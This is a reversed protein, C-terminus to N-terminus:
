RGILKRHWRHGNSAASLGYKGIEARSADNAVVGLVPASSARELLQVLRQASTERTHGLRAVIVIADVGGLLPIADSVELVPPADILVHDFDEAVSQMLGKMAASALLGPPNEVAAGSVLVSLSGTRSEATVVGAPALAPEAGTEPHQSQVTQIADEVALAGALVESLGAPGVVGLLRAQVPRRFDAEIVATREGADRQVLALNAVLTSKGDGADASLFLITRPSSAEDQALMDGLKLMTQFRWLPDRLPRAPRSLGDRHIIPRKVTPLVALIQTQFVAEIDALSRLRREFGSVAYAALAALAVGIVFGFIANKKPGTSALVAKASGIQQVSTVSLDSELQEIRTNLSVIQLSGTSSAGLSKSHKGKSSSAPALAALEIRNLQSRTTAIAARIGRQYKEEHRKIYTQAFDNALLAAAKATRAETSINVFESGAVAKAKVKGRAAARDHKKKLQRRVDEAITSNLLAVQDAIETTGLKKLHLTNNLAGEQESAGLYLQTKATYRPPQGRYYAFTAAAVLIGVLLILWKGRWLPALIASANTTENM